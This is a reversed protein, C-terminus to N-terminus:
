GYRGRWAALHCNEAQDVCLSPDDHQDALLRQDVILQIELLNYRM